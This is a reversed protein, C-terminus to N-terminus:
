SRDSWNVIKVTIILDSMEPYFFIRDSVESEKLTGRCGIVDTIRKEVSQRDRKEFENNMKERGKIKENKRKKHKRCQAM